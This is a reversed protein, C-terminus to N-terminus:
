RCKDLYKELARSKSLLYDDVWVRGREHGPYCVDKFGYSNIPGVIADGESPSYGGYWELLYHGNPGDALFYDGCGKKRIVVEARDGTIPKDDIECIKADTEIREAATALDVEYRRLEDLSMLVCNGSVLKFGRKCTWNHGYVDLEANEPIQVAVCRGGAARYGRKCTWNHGYVDLEANEPIQVAVCRGGADRYGRKCTWNHGYVDLEANEPIQVAVCRGGADRYGRKCTWNRGYVDLEANEPIEIAACGNPTQRTGRPCDGRVGQAFILGKVTLFFVVAIVTGVHKRSVRECNRDTTGSEKRGADLQNDLPSFIMRLCLVHPVADALSHM